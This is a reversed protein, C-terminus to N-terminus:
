AEEAPTQDTVDQGNSFEVIHEKKSCGRVYREVEVAREDIKGILMLIDAAKRLTNRQTQLLTGVWQGDDDIDTKM